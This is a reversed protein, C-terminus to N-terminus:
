EDEGISGLNFPYRIDFDLHDETDVNLCKKPKSYVPKPEYRENYKRAEKWQRHLFWGGIISTGIVGMGTNGSFFGLFMIFGMFLMLAIGIKKVFDKFAKMGEREKWPPMVGECKVKKADNVADTLGKSYGELFERTKEKMYPIADKIEGILYIFNKQQDIPIKALARALSIDLKNEDLAEALEPILAKKLARKDDRVINKERLEICKIYTEPDIIRQALNSDLFIEKLIRYKIEKPLNNERFSIIRCPVKSFGLKKAAKLRNHGSLITYFDSILGKDAVLIPHYIGDKRISDLLLEMQQSSMPPFIHQEPFEVLEDVSLEMTESITLVRNMFPM